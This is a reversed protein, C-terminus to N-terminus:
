RGVHTGTGLLWLGPLLSLRSASPGCASVWRARQEPASGLPRGSAPSGPLACPLRCRGPKGPSGRAWARACPAAPGPRPPPAPRPPGPLGRPARGSPAPAAPSPADPATSAADGIGPAEPPLNPSLGARGERRGGGAGARPRSRAESAAGPRALRCRGPQSLRRSCWGGGGGGRSGSRGCWALVPWRSRPGLGAKRPRRTLLPAGRHRPALVRPGVSRADPCGLNTQTGSPGPNSPGKGAWPHTKPSRSLGKQSGEQSEACSPVGARSVSGAGTVRLAGPGRAPAKGRGQVVQRPNQISVPVCVRVRTPVRPFNRGTHSRRLGVNATEAGPQMRGPDERYGPGPQTERREGPKPARPPRTLTKGPPMQPVEGAPFSNSLRSLLRLAPLGPHPSWIGLARHPTWTWKPCCRSAGPARLPPHKALPPPDPLPNKKLSAHAGSYERPGAARGGGAEGAGSCCCDTADRGKLNM